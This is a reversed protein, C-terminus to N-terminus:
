RQVRGLTDGKVLNEVEEKTVLNFDGEITHKLCSAAVVFEIAEQPTHNSILVLM